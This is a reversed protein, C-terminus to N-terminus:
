SAKAKASGSGGKLAMKYIKSLWFLNLGNIICNAALIILYHSVYPLRGEFAARGGLLIGQLSVPLGFLIRCLVFSVAFVREILLLRRSGKLGLTLLISRMCLFPTSLEYLLCALASYQLFPWRAISYVLIGCLHHFVYVVERKDSRLLLLLDWVFYGVSLAFIFSVLESSGFLKDDVFAGGSLLAYLAMVSVVCAHLMSNSQLALEHMDGAKLSALTKYSLLQPLLAELVSHTCGFLVTNRAVLFLQESSAAEGLYGGLGGALQTANLLPM